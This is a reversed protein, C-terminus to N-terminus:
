TLSGHSGVNPSASTVRRAAEKAVDKFSLFKMKSHSEDITIEEKCCGAITKFQCISCTIESV